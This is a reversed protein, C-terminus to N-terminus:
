WGMQGAQNRAKLVAKLKNLTVTNTGYLASLLTRGALVKCYNATNEEATKVISTRGNVAEGWRLQYTDRLITDCMVKYVHKMVSDTEPYKSVLVPYESKKFELVPVDTM